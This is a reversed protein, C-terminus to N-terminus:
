PERSLLAGPLPTNRHANYSDVLRPAKVQLVADAIAKHFCDQVAPAQIMASELFPCVRRAALAIRDYLAAAGEATALNLDSFQVTVKPADSNEGACATGACALALAGALIGAAFHAIGQHFRTQFM